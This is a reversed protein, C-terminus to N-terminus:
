QLDRKVNIRENSKAPGLDTKRSKGEVLELHTCVYVLTREYVFALVCACMCASERQRERARSCVFVRECASERERVCVSHIHTHTHTDAHTHTHPRAFVLECMCDRVLLVGHVVCFHARAM